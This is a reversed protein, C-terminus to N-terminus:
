AAEKLFPLAAKKKNLKEQSKLLELEFELQAEKEWQEAHQRMVGTAVKIASAADDVASFLKVVTAVMSSWIMSLGKFFGVKQVVVEDM